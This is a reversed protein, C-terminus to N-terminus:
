LGVVDGRADGRTALEVAVQLVLVVALVGVVAVPGLGSGTAALLLAAAATGLRLWLELDRPSRSESIHLATLAAFALAVAGCLVWRGPDGLEGADTAKIALKVGVGLATLGAVLPLHGYLYLQRAWISRGAFSADVYDFYIWWFAAGLTFGLGAVVGAELSWSVTETGVVVALVTEGLVIITFLGIREPIHSTHVPVREIARRSALPTGLDVALALAWIAYRAPGPFALSVLWLASAASFGLTYATLLPRALPLQRWARLYLAILIARVAVYAIVFSTTEGVAADIVTSALGGVAFMGALMLGRHVVDDTDFRDAYFTFGVWSWWVPVVLGCFVLFGHVTVDRSLATSLQAIAVVYVLDFFLELWTARRDEDADELTRLQPPRVWRRAEVEIV